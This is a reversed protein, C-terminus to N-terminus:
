PSTASEILPTRANQGVANLMTVIVDRGHATVRRDEALRMLANVYTDRDIGRATLMRAQDAMIRGAREGLGGNLLANLGRRGISFAAEGFSRPAETAVPAGAGIPLRSQGAQRRATASNMMIQNFNEAMRNEADVLGTLREANQQGSILAINERNFESNLARRAASDGRPGFNTAGRGMMQRLDNRAGHRYRVRGLQSLDDLESAVTQPDRRQSFVKSGQEIAEKGELGDGAIQRGQRWPSYQPAGPSLIEDVQDRLSRALNGYIRQENSGRDANRALDDIARKLYDYEVGQHVRDARSGQVGTMPTMAEDVPRLRFRQRVGDARALQEAKAFASRPIQSLTLRLGPTQEIASNYFADYYPAAQQRTRDTIREIYNPINREPTITQDIGDRLRDPAADRRANLQGRVIPLQPGRTQALVEASGTLDEGMDLLMGEPGLEQAQRAYVARDLGSSQMDDAVRNVAGREFQRIPQPIRSMRNRAYNVANGVGQAVPAIVAGAAAGIGAGKAANVVRDEGEGEGAGYFGGYAAGTAMANGIRPAMTVGRFLNLMPAAPVGAAIGGAIALGKEIGSANKDIYRQRASQYAKADDYPQGIRGGSVKELGSDMWASAEDLWSGVLSYQAPSPHPAFGGAAEKRVREDARQEIESLEPEKPAAAAADNGIAQRMVGEITEPPTGDPFSISLGGPGNVTIPM